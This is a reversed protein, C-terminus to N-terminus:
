SAMRLDHDVWRGRFQGTYPGPFARCEWVPKLALHSRVSPAAADTHELVGDRHARAIVPGLAKAQAPVELGHATAWTWFEDAHLYECQEAYAVVADYAAALWDAGAQAAHAMGTDRGAAAQDVTIPFPLEDPM